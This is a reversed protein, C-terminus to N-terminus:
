VLVYVTAFVCYAGFFAEKNGIRNNRLDLDTLTTNQVLAEAIAKVGVDWLGISNWQM